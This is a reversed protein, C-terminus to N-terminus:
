VCVPLGYKRISRFLNMLKQFFGVPREEKRAIKTGNLTAVQARKKMLFYYRQEVGGVPRGLQEAVSMFCFHLTHPRAEVYRMLTADEEATWRVVKRKEM